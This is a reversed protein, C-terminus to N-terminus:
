QKIINITKNQSLTSVNVVYTGPASGLRLTQREVDEAKEIRLQSIPRGRQDIVQYVVMQGSVGRIEVDVTQGTVPNPMAVIDIPTLAEPAALRLGGCSNKWNFAYVAEGPTGQQTAKLTIVPNDAYLQLSYPGLSTTTPLENAVSFAIPQGTLGTYQPTFTVTQKGDQAATCNVGSVGTIAFPADGASTGIKALRCNSNADQYRSYLVNNLVILFGDHGWGLDPNTLLTLTKGDYKALRFAYNADRYQGYIANDFVIQNGVYGPGNDPNPILTVTNGDFKALRGRNTPDTYTSYLSGNLVVPPYTSTYQRADMFGTYNYGQEVEPVLTMTQAYMRDCTFAYLTVTVLFYLIKKLLFTKM